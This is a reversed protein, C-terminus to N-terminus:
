RSRSSSPAQDAARLKALLELANEAAADMATNDFICWAPIVAARLRQAVGTLVADDYSSYYTRPSGHLRLYVFGDWGGPDSAAPVVAPDAAVRAVEFARLAADAGASFWTPHRPECALAGGYRERFSTFFADALAADYAFSPPLQVLLVGRKQGLHASEALFRELPEACDTFRRAHTIEKPVKLAFRFDDPVGAAWRAYTSPRHPRYFSSNIEVCSFRTAYRQLHTGGGEFRDRLAGPITWGATGIRIM